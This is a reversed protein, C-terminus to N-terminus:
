TQITKKIGLGVPIGGEICIFMLFSIGSVQDREEKKRNLEELTMDYEMQIADRRRLVAQLSCSLMDLLILGQDLNEIMKM